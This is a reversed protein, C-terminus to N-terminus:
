NYFTIGIFPRITFSNQNSSYFNGSVPLILSYFYYSVDIGGTLVFSSNIKYSGQVNVGLGIDFFEYALDDYFYALMNMAFGPILSVTFNNTNVPRIAPGVLGDMTFCFAGKALKSSYGSELNKQSTIINFSVTSGFGLINNPDSYNEQTTSIGFGNFGINEVIYDEYNLAFTVAKEAFLSTTFAFCVALIAIIKKM